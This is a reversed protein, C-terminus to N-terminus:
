EDMLEMMEDVGDTSNDSTKEGSFENLSLLGNSSDIRVM